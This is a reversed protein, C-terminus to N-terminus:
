KFAKGQRSSSLLRSIYPFMLFGLVATYAASPIVVTKLAALIEIREGALFTLGVYITQSVISIGAIVVMPILASSGLFTREVRGSIFGIAVKSVAQLGLSGAAVLDQLLGGIFGNIAGPVPGNIFGFTAIVILIIDPKAKGISIFPVIASQFIFGAFLILAYRLNVNM